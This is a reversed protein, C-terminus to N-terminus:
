SNRYGYVRIKGGTLTGSAPQITFSTYSTTNELSGLCNWHGNAGTRIMQSQMFTNLALFPNALEIRAYVGQVNIAGAWIWRLNSNNDYAGTWTSGTNVGNITNRYGTQTSGMQMWLNDASVSSVGGGVLILYNDYTSSFADSVVVSTNGTGINVIGNSVTGATGGNFVATCTTVLELATPNTTTQNPIVWATGNWVLLQDTDKQFICQGEFPSAPRAAANDIVGPRILSSAGIQQTIGMLFGEEV